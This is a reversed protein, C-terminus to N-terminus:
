KRLGEIYGPERMREAFRIVDDRHYRRGTGAGIHPLEGARVGKDFYAAPIGALDVAQAKTLWVPWPDSKEAAERQSEVLSATAQEQRGVIQEIFAVLAGPPRTALATSDSTDPSETDYSDPTIATEPPQEPKKYGLDNRLKFVDARSYYSTLGHKEKEQRIPKLRREITKTSVGCEDAAERKTFETPVPKM